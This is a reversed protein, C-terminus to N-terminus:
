LVAHPPTPAPFEDLGALTDPCVALVASREALLADIQRTKGIIVDSLQGITKRAAARAKVATSLEDDVVRLSRDPM